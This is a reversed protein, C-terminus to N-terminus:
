VLDDAGLWVRGHSADVEMGDPARYGYHWVENNPAFLPPLRKLSTENGGSERVNDDGLDGGSRSPCHLGQPPQPLQKPANMDHRLLPLQSPQMSFGLTRGPM